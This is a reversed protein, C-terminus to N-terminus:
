YFLMEYYVNQWLSGGMALLAAGQGSYNPRIAAATAFDCYSNDLRHRHLTFLKSPQEPIVHKIKNINITERSILRLM